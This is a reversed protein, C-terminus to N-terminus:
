SSPVDSINGVPLYGDAQARTFSSVDAMRILLWWNGDSSQWWGMSWTTSTAVVVKLPDAVSCRLGTAATTDLAVGLAEYLHDCNERAVNMLDVATPDEEEWREDPGHYTYANAM